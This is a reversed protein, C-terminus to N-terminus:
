NIENFFFFFFCLDLNKEGIPFCNNYLEKAFNELIVQKKKLKQLTSFHKTPPTPNNFFRELLLVLFIQRNPM